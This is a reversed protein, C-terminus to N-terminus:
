KLTSVENILTGIGEIVVQFYDGDKLPGIGSPTGTLIVDGPLLTMCASVYAIIEAVKFIHDATSAEQVTKGNLVGKITLLEPDKIDTEIYPGLPCFTNFGKAYTWQGNAPQKDRATVDNACTYGLVYELAESQSVRYAPKGIVVGLEAEYDVRCTEPPYLIKDQPGIVATSPKIFLIPEEPITLKMEEAHTRYNLGLCVVKSPCCPPLLRIASIDIKKGTEIFKLAPLEQEISGFEFITTGEIYGFSVRNNSQFRLLKLAIEGKIFLVVM